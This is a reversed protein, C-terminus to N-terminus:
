VEVALWGVPVLHPNSEPVWERSNFSLYKKGLTYWGRLDTVMKFGKPPVTMRVPVDIPLDAMLNDYKDQRWSHEPPEYFVHGSEDNYWYGVDLIDYTDDPRVPVRYYTTLEVIDIRRIHELFLSDHTVPNYRRCQLVKGTRAGATIEGHSSYIIM